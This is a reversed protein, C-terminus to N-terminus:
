TNLHTVFERGAQDLLVHCGTTAREVWSWIGSVPDRTIRSMGEESGPIGGLVLIRFPSFTKRVDEEDIHKHIEKYPDMAQNSRSTRKWWNAFKLRERKIALTERTLQDLQSLEHIRNLDEILGQVNDFVVATQLRQKLESELKVVESGNLVEWEATSFISKFEKIRLDPIKGLRRLEAVTPVLKPISKIDMGLQDRGALERVGLRISYTLALAHESKNRHTLLNMLHESLKNHNRVLRRSMFDRVRGNYAAKSESKMRTIHVQASDVLPDFGILESWYESAATQMLLQSLKSLNSRDTWFGRVTECSKLRTLFIGVHKDVADDSPNTQEHFDELVPVGRGHSIHGVIMNWPVSALQGQEALVAYSNAKVDIYYPRPPRTEEVVTGIANPETGLAHLKARLAELGEMRSQSAPTGAGALTISSYSPKQGLQVATSHSPSMDSGSM